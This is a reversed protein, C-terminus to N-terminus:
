LFETTYGMVNIGLPYNETCVFKKESNLANYIDRMAEPACLIDDGDVSIIKQFGFTEACQLQRLPINNIAGFFVDTEFENLEKNHIEDSTAIVVKILRNDIELAFERKIRFLLIELFKGKSTNILHKDHLRKSGLRILVLIGTM